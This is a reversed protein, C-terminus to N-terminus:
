FRYVNYHIGMGVVIVPQNHLFDYGINFTPGIGFGNFWHREEPLDVYTGELLKAKFAPHATKAYIKLKDEEYRQGWTLGIQSDRELLWTKNHILDITKLFESNGELGIQTRGTFIDYNTSDYVFPLTWDVNWTSDNVKTPKNYKAKLEDLAKQLEASDQKLTFIINNLTVVEGKANKLQDALRKNFKKLDKVDGIYGNISSELDGNKLKETKITDTLASINNNYREIEDRLNSNNNCLGLVFAMFIMAIIYGFFKNNIFEWIKRIIKKM